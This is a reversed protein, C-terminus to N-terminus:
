TSLSVRLKKKIKSFSILAEITRSKSGFGRSFRRSKIFQILSSLFLAIRGLEPGIMAPQMRAPVKAGAKIERKVRRSAAPKPM